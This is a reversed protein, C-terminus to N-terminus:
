WPIFFIFCSSETKYINHKYTENPLIKEDQGGLSGANRIFLLGTHLTGSKCNESEIASSQSTHM